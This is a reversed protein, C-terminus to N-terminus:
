LQNGGNIFQEPHSSIYSETFRIFIRWYIQYLDVCGTKKCLTGGKSNTRLLPMWSSVRHKKEKNKGYFWEYGNYYEDNHIRIEDNGESSLGVIEFQEPCFYDLFTLPVGMIGKYDCPIESTKSVEIANYNDYKPYMEEHSKYTYGLDLPIMMHRKPHDLNTFWTIGSVRIMGEIKQTSTATDTYPTKFFGVNGKFGFGVWAKNNKLLPFFEKYTIGNQNGIILFQKNYKTILGVFERFLSFPPNTVVIDSEELLKLSIDSRFDGAEYYLDHKVNNTKKKGTKEDIVTEKETIQIKNGEKDLAYNGILPSMINAGETELFYKCGTIDLDKQTGVLYKKTSKVRLVYPHNITGFELGGFPSTKYGTAILEKLELRNFNMLFYKIFNSEFPDDCNCLIVKGKFKDTYNKLELQIDSLQTYFEDKKGKKASSINLYAM